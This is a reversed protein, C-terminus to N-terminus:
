PQQARGDRHEKEAAPPLIADVVALLRAINLPKTLYERAGAALLRVGLEPRADATVIVVPVTATALDNRLQQLIQEGDLDALHLDLLILDPPHQRALDLAHRGLACGILRVGGHRAFIRQMLELDSPNDEVCLVTRVPFPPADDQTV